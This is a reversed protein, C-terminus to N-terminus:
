TEAVGFKPERKEGGRWVAWQSLLGHHAATENLAIRVQQGIRAAEYM